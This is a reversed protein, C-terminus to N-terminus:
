KKKKSCFVIEAPKRRKNGWWVQISVLGLYLMLMAYAIVSGIAVGTLVALFLYWLKETDMWLEPSM